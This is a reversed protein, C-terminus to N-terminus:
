FFCTLAANRAAIEAFSWGYSSAFTTAVNRFRMYCSRFTSMALTWLLRKASLREGPNGNATSFNVTQLPPPPPPSALHLVDPEHQAGFAIRSGGCSSRQLKGTLLTGANIVIYKKIQGAPLCPRGLLGISGFRSSLWSM